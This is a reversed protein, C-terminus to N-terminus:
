DPAWLREIQWGDEGNERDPDRQPVDPWKRAAWKTADSFQAFPGWPNGARDRVICSGEHTVKRNEEIM